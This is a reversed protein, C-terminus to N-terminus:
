ELPQRAIVPPERGAVLWGGITAALPLGLLLAILDAVPAPDLTTALSSHAWAIVSLYAVTTGLLAGLLGLAGATASTISRRTTSSAGTATLTRLDSATESRILGITMALVTLALLIGVATAGNRVQSLQPEGSSTEIRTEAALALRRAANKQAATLPEATQILWRVPVLQQGLTRVAQETILTNPGSTGTPLNTFTQIKPDALCSAASCHHSESLEHGDPTYHYAIAGQGLLELHPVAALGARATLIDTDPDIQSPKIGYDRLLTPTAVYLPGQFNVKEARGIEPRMMVSNNKAVAQWLTARRNTALGVSEPSILGECARGDTLCPGSRGAADLALVFRAHFSAALGNMSTQLAHGEAPTPQRNVGPYGSGPGRPEDVILQNSALNPGAFTLPNSSRATALICVLAALLVTFSVAALVAGSRARYRALDRLALRVAIPARRAALAPLAIAVPALLLTGITSAAIGAILLLPDNGGNQKAGIAAQGGASALCGLGAALLVIGSVASRHSEKPLAPRGSLAAVVPIRAVSRAPRWAALTATVVAIVVATGIAWWPLHAWEVRHEVSRQLQPAYSIWALLGVAAGILTGVMGVVAGNAVMVLRVNRDTAGLAGLMGLSRLRRQAMVAFGAVAALGIFILGFVAVLFVITTPSIGNSRMRGKPTAGGPFHLGAVSAAGADFLVTVQTPASVQGPALLAFEDLLNSPDEVLGTVRRARSGQSWLDGIRLNFLSAVGATVAVESRGVPYHGAVLSLMPQGYRGRPDQARLDIASVSGPVATTRNAIVDIPGAAYRQKLAAIDADLYPDGGPLTLLQNATGFTAATASSPANNAVAAAFTTAAVAVAILAVVLIQQRWERRFLRWAWRIVARRAPVGGGAARAPAPRARLTASV